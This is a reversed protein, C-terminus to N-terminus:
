FFLTPSLAREAAGVGPETSVEKARATFNGKLVFGTRGTSAADGHAQAQPEALAGAPLAAKPMPLFLEELRCAARTSLESWPLPWASEPATERALYVVAGSLPDLRLQAAVERACRQWVERQRPTQVLVLVPPFFRHSAMREECERYCLLKGLRQKVVREDHNGDMGTDLLIFASYFGEEAETWLLSRPHLHFVLIADAACHVPKGHFVFTHQYDRKWHWNLEKRAGGPALAIPARAVLANVVNQLFMLAHLRPLMRLLGREDAGFAQALSAADAGEIAAAARVGQASLYFLRCSDAGIAPTVCEVLGLRECQNLLRTATSIAKKGLAIALDEARQFPFHLLWQLLKRVNPHPPLPVTGARRRSRAPRELALPLKLQSPPDTHALRLALMSM